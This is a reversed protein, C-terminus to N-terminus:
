LGKLDRTADDSYPKPNTDYCGKSEGSPLNTKTTNHKKLHKKRQPFSKFIDVSKELLNRKPTQEKLAKFDEHSQQHRENSPSPIMMKKNRFCGKPTEQRSREKTSVNESIKAHLSDLDDIVDYWFGDITMISVNHSQQNEFISCIADVAILGRDRKINDKTVRIFHM